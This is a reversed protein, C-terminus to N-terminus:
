FRRRLDATLVKLAYQLTQHGKLEDRFVEPTENVAFSLHNKHMSLALPFRPDM